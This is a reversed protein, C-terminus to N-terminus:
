TQSLGRAGLWGFLTRLAIARHSIRNKGNAALEALTRGNSLEFVPDYGFGGSGRPAQAIFGDLVGEAVLEENGSVLAVVSRFSARRDEIGKLEELLRAVNDAYTADPGAFRATNVGPLGGLVNVFLGTDDALSPIGTADFVEHAKKLANEELTAGTEEIDPWSIGDVLEVQLGSEALVEAIEEVKDLNKSAVVLRDIKV